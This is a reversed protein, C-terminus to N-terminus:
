RSRWGKFRRQVLGLGTLGSGILLLTSPEPIPASAVSLSTIDGRIFQLSASASTSFQLEWTAWQFNSRDPSLPLADSSFVTKTPDSLNLFVRFPSYGSLAAGSLSDNQVVYDDADSWAYNDFVSIRNNTGSSGVAYSGVTFSMGTLAGLYVGTDAAANTDATAPDFSYSGSIMQSTNFTGSLAPYVYTVTGSFDVTIAEARQVSGSLAILGLVIVPFMLLRLVNKM